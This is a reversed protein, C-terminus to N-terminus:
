RLSYLKDGESVFALTPSQSQRPTALAKLIDRKAAHLALQVFSRAEMGPHNVQKTVVYDGDNYVHGKKGIVKGLVQFALAGGPKARIIHPKTGKDLFNVIPSKSYVNLVGNEFKSYLGDSLKTPRDISSEMNIKIYDILVEGAKELKSDYVAKVLDMQKVQRAIGVLLGLM